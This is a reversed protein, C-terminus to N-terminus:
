IFIYFFFDKTTMENIKQIMQFIGAEDVPFSLNKYKNIIM